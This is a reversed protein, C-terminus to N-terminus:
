IWEGDKKDDKYLGEYEPIEDYRWRKSIGDRKGRLNTQEDWQSGDDHWSKWIGEKSGNKYERYFSMQGNSHYLIWEGDPKGNILTYKQWLKGDGHNYSHEGDTVELECDFNGQTYWEIRVIRGDDYYIYEGHKEKSNTM